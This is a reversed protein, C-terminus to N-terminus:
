YLAKKIVGARVAVWARPWRETGTTLAVDFLEAAAYASALGPPMEMCSLPLSPLARVIAPVFLSSFFTSAMFTLAPREPQLGELRRAGELLSELLPLLRRGTESLHVGRADRAFLQAGLLQEVRAIAKSVQSPTVGQLRAAASVSGSRVVGLLTAVDPLRLDMMTELTANGPLFPDNGTKRKFSSRSANTQTCL